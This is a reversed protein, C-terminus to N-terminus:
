FFLHKRCYANKRAEHWLVLFKRRAYIEASITFKKSFVSILVKVASIKNKRSNEYPDVDNTPTELKRLFIDQRPKEEDNRKHIAYMGFMPVM